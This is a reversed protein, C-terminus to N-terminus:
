VNEFPIISFIIKGKIEKESILGIIRSDLSAGRNDGMVFYYGKPITKYGIDSLEFDSTKINKSYDEIVKDNIYIKNDEIKVTEGPLGIVRKILRDNDYDFVVIDMRRYEKTMKSLLLINGNKFTNNMSDGTVRVPTAAFTRILIVALIIIIYPISEKVFKM